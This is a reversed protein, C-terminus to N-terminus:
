ISNIFKMYKINKHGTGCTSCILYTRGPCKWNRTTSQPRYNHQPKYVTTKDKIWKEQKDHNKQNRKLIMLPVLKGAGNLKHTKIREKTNTM